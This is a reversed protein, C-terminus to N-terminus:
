SMISQLNEVMKLAYMIMPGIIWGGMVLVLPGWSVLSAKAARQKVLNENDLKRKENYYDQQIEIDAFANKFGMKDVAMMCRIFKQFTHMDDSEYLEQLAAGEGMDINIICKQIAPKYSYSFREMWELLTSIQISDMDMFIMALLNFSNVEDEKQMAMTKARYSLLLTPVFNAAFGGLLAIVVYYWRFYIDDYKRLSTKTATVVANVYDDSKLIESHQRVEEALEEDSLAEYDGKHMKALQTAMNEMETTYTPDPVAVNQFAERYNTIVNQASAFNIFLFSMILLATVSLGTAIRKLMHAKVGTRDGTIELNHEIKHLRTYHKSYYVNLLQNMNNAFQRLIYPKAKTIGNKHSNPDLIQSFINSEIASPREFTRLIDIIKMVIFAALFIATMVSVGAVGNFYEATEPMNKLFFMHELPKMLLIPVITVKEMSSFATDIRERKLTEENIQKKLNMLGKVFSTNGDPLTKDGYIVTPVALSVFSLLFNNPAKETYATAEEEPHASTIIKYVEEVHQNIPYPADALMDYLADDLQGGHERYTSILESIFDGLQVIIKNETKRTTRSILAQFIVFSLFSGLGIFYIDGQALVVTGLVGVFFVLVAKGLMKSAEIDAQVQSGPYLLSTKVKIKTYEGKLGPICKLANVLWVFRNKKNKNKIFTPIRSNRRNKRMKLVWVIIGLLIVAWVTLFMIASISM